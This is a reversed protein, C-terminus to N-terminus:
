GRYHLYNVMFCAPRMKTRLNFGGWYVKIFKAVLANLLYNFAQAM